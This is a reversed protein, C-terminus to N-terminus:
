DVYMPSSPTAPMQDLIKCVYCAVEVSREEYMLIFPHKQLFISCPSLFSLVDFNTDSGVSLKDWSRRPVSAFAGVVRPQVSDHCRSLSLCASVHRRTRARGIQFPRGPLPTPFSIGIGPADTSASLPAPAEAAMQSGLLAAPLGAATAGPVCVEVEGGM